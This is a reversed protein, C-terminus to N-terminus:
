FWRTGVNLTDGPQLRDGLSTKMEVKKGDVIRILKLRRNSGTDTLGGAQSIVQLVTLDRSYSFAGPNNVQGGVYVQEARSVVITDGDLLPTNVSPGREQLARVDLRAVEQAGAESPLVPGTASRGAPPRVVLIDGGATDTLSGVRALAELLTLSGTLAVQGPTRVEGVVYVRQSNYEAVEVTVQPNMLYGDALKARLSAGIEETTRGVCEIVGVLPFAITGAPGVTYAGTLNAESWVTVRLVDRMGVKYIAGQAAATAVAAVVCMVAAVGTALRRRNTSASARRTTM